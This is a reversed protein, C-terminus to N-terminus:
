LVLDVHRKVHAALGILSTFHSRQYSYIAIDGPHTVDTAFRRKTLARVACVSPHPPPAEM